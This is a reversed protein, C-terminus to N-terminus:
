DAVVIESNSKRYEYIQINPYIRFKDEFIGSAFKITESNLIKNHAM